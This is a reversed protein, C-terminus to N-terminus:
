RNIPNKIREEEKRENIIYIDRIQTHKKNKM